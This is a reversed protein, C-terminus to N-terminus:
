APKGVDYLDAPKYAKAPDHVQILVGPIGEQRYMGVVAPVDDYAAVYDKPTLEFTAMHQRLMERKITAPNGSGKRLYVLPDSCQHSRDHAFMYRRIYAETDHRFKEPRGSFFVPTSIQTIIEFLGMNCVPDYIMHQNYVEYRADGELRWDIMSIRASDDTLCNDLDWISWRRPRPTMELWGSATVVYEPMSGLVQAEHTM